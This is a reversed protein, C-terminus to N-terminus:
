VKTYFASRLHNFLIDLGFFLELVIRFMLKFDILLDHTVPLSNDAQWHCNKSRQLFFGGTYCIISYASHTGAM